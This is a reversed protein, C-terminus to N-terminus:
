ITKTKKGHSRDRDGYEIGGILEWAITTCKQTTPALLNLRREVRVPVLEICDDRIALSAPWRPKIRHLREVFFERLLAGSGLTGFSLPRTHPPSDLNTSGSGGVGGGGGIEAASTDGNTAAAAAASSTVTFFASPSPTLSPSKLDVSRQRTEVFLPMSPSTRLQSTRGINTPRVDGRAGSRPLVAIKPALFKQKSNKRIVLFNSTGASAITSSISLAVGPVDLAEIDYADDAFATANIYFSNADHFFLANQKCVKKQQKAFNTARDTLM